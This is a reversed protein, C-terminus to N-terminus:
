WLRYASEMPCALWKTVPGQMAFFSSGAFINESRSVFLLLNYRVRNQKLSFDIQEVTKM